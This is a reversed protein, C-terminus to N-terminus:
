DHAPAATTIPFSVARPAQASAKEKILTLRRTEWLAPLLGLGAASCVWKRETRLAQNQTEDHYAGSRSGATLASCSCNLANNIM